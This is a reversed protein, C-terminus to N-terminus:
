KRYEYEYVKRKTLKNKNNYYQKEVRLGDKYVNKETRETRGKADLFVTETMRGGEDYAYKEWRKVEGKSNFKEIEILDGSENYKEVSEVVPKDMGEEVFYEYVTLTAIKKEKIIRTSQGYSYGALAMFTFTLIFMVSDRLKM